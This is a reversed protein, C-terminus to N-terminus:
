LNFETYAKIVNEESDYESSMVIEVCAPYDSKLCYVIGYSGNYKKLLDEFDERFLREREEKTVM